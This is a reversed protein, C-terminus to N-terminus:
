LLLVSRVVRLPFFGRLNVALAYKGFIEAWGTLRGAIARFSQALMRPKLEGGAKEQLKRSAAGLQKKVIGTM